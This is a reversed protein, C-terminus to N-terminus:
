YGQKITGNEKDFHQGSECNLMYKALQLRGADQTILQMDM